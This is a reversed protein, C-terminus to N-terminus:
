RATPRSPQALLSDLSLGSEETDLLAAGLASDSNSVLQEAVLHPVLLAVRGATWDAAVQYTAVVGAEWQSLPDQSCRAYSDFSTPPISVAVLRRRASRHAAVVARAQACWFGVLDDLAAYAEDRGKRRRGFAHHLALSASTSSGELAQWSRSADEAWESWAGRLVSAAQDGLGSFGEESGLGDPMKLLPVAASDLLAGPPLLAAFARRESEIVAALADQIPGAWEALWPHAAVASSSELMLGHLHRWHGHHRERIFRAREYREQDARDYEDELPYDGQLLAAAADAEESPDFDVDPHHDPETYSTAQLVDRVARTFAVLPHDTAIRWSCTGCLKGVAEGLEVTVAEVARSSRLSGCNEEGHLKGSGSSATFCELSMSALPGLPTNADLVRGADLRYSRPSLSM